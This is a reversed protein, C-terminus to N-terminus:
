PGVVEDLLRDVPIVEDGRQTPRHLQALQTAPALGLLQRELAVEVVELTEDLLARAFQPLGALDDLARHPPQAARTGLHVLNDLLDLLHGVGRESDQDLALGASALFEHRPRDVLHTGSAPLRKDSDVAARDRVGQDLRLEKAVLLARERPGMLSLLPLELQCVASAKRSSITLRGRGVCAFSRRANCSRCTWGSPLLCGTWTSARIM